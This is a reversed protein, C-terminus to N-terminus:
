MLAEQGQAAFLEITDHRRGKPVRVFKVTCKRCEYRIKEDESKHGHNIAGCNPCFMPYTKWGKKLGRDGREKQIINAIKRINLTFFDRLIKM